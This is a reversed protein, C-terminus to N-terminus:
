VALRCGAYDDFVCTGAFVCVGRQWGYGWCEWIRACLPLNTKLDGRRENQVSSYSGKQRGSVMQKTNNTEDNNNNNRHAQYVSVFVFLLSIIIIIITKEDNALWSAPPSCRSRHAPATPSSSRFPLSLYLFPLLFM